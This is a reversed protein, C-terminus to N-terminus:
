NLDVLRNEFLMLTYEENLTLSWTECGYIPLSVIDLQTM